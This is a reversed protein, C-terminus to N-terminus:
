RRLLWFALALAVIVAVMSAVAGILAMSHTDLKRVSAEDPRRAPERRVRRAPQQVEVPEPV